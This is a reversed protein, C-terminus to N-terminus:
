LMMVGALGAVAVVAAAKISNVGAANGKDSSKSDDSSKADDSSSSATGTEKAWTVKDCITASEKLSAIRSSVEPVDSCADLLSSIGDKQDMYWSSLKSAYSTYEKAMSGTVAPLVCADTMTMVDTQKALFSALSSDPTPIATLDPLISSAVSACEKADRKELRELAPHSAAVVTAGVTLIIASRM